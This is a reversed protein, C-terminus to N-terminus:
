DFNLWGRTTRKIESVGSAAITEVADWLKLADDGRPIYRIVPGFLSAEDPQGPRYTIIPTGVDRGTRSFALETDARVYDDHSEDLAHECLEVPLGATGLMEQMFGVPDANIEPRRQGKHFAEGLATYLRGVAANDFRLRVEDCVRHAYLGAYHSAQWSEDYGPDTGIRAENIVKLSIFRWTVDYSRLGQVEEVWRSTIWAWPCVPDFFFEIDAM